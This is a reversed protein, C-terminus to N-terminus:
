CLSAPGHIAREEEAALRVLAAFGRRLSRGRFAPRQHLQRFMVFFFGFRRSGPQTVPRRLRRFKGPMLRNM